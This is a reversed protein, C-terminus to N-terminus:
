PTWQIPGGMFKEFEARADPLPPLQHGRAQNKNQVTRVKNQVTRVPTASPCLRRIADHVEKIQRPAFQRAQREFDRWNAMLQKSSIFQSGQWPESLGLPSGPSLDGTQLVEFWYRNFGALSKLRQDMHAFTKPKQRVRFHQLQYRQLDHVTAAIVQPDAIMRHIREWYLHEGKRTDSVRLILLRRDDPDVQAFHDHNSAAFFRHVSQITRRPQHKQEITVTPETVFSKLRDAAKRDGAFLAEDMCIVYNREIAANFNGIVHDVDVTLLTTRSWIAQLLRFFTGKGTGQGGLLVIMIGPKEEPKQLMHALFRILYRFAWRDGACIVELLFSRLDRWDGPAPVVTPPVWMNFVDGATPTPSFALGNYVRTGPSDLFNTIVKKHDSFVPLAELYRRMLLKGAGLRLLYEGDASSGQQRAALQDLEGLWLEGGLKFLCFAQQLAQLPNIQAPSLPASAMGGERGQM